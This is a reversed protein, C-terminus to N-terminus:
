KAGPVQMCVSWASRRTLLLLLPTVKATRVPSVKLDGAPKIKLVWLAIFQFLNMRKLQATDHTKATEVAVACIMPCRAEVARIGICRAEISPGVARIGICWL